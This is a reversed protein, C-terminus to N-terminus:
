CLVQEAFGPLKGGVAWRARNAPGAQLLHLADMKCRLLQRHFALKGLGASSTFLALSEASM